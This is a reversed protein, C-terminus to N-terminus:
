ITFPRARPPLIEDDRAAPRAVVFTAQRVRQFNQGSFFGSRHKGGTGCRSEERM